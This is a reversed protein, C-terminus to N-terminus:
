YLFVTHSMYRFHWLGACSFLVIFQFCLLVIAIGYDKKQPNGTNAKEKNSPPKKKHPKLTLIKKM